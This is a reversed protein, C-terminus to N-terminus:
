ILCTVTMLSFTDSYSSMILYKDKDM